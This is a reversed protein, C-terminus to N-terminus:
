EGGETWRKRWNQVDVKTKHNTIKKRKIKQTKTIQTDKGKAKQTREVVIGGERVGSSGKKKQEAEKGLENSIESDKGGQGAV